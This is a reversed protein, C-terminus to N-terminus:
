SASSRSRNFTYVDVVCFWAVVRLLLRSLSALCLSKGYQLTHLSSETCIGVAQWLFALEVTWPNFTRQNISNATCSSLFTGFSAMLFIVPDFPVPAMAYGAAATTVVLATLKLKALRAYIGPLDSYEVKLEKWQRAELRAARAAEPEAPDSPLAKTAPEPKLAPIKQVQSVVSDDRDDLVATVSEQKPIARQCLGSSSMVYQRKLFCLHQFTIWEAQNKRCLQILSRASMHSRSANSILKLQVGVGLLGEVLSTM